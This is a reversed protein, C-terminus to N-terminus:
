VCDCSSALLRTLNFNRAKDSHESGANLTLEGNTQKPNHQTSVAQLLVAAKSHHVNKNTPNVQSPLQAALLLSATAVHM